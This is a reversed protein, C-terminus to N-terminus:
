GICMKNSVEPDKGGSGSTALTAEVQLDAVLGKLGGELKALAGLGEKSRAGAARFASSAQGV